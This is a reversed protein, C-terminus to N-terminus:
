FMGHLRLWQQFRGTALSQLDTWGVPWGMFWEVWEPNLSGIDFDEMQRLIAGPISDRDRQSPPLTSNKADQTAVAWGLKNPKRRGDGSCKLKTDNCAKSAGPTPMTISEAITPTRGKRFKESRVSLKTTPTGLSVSSGSEKVSTIWQRHAVWGSPTKRQYAVGAVTMGWKPWKGSFEVLGGALSRQLTKWSRSDPDYKALSAPWKRGCGAGSATLALGKELWPSIKVHSAGPLSISGDGGHGATSHECMMGSPSGPSCAIGSGSSSCEGAIHMWNLPAFLAIVACSEASSEEGQDLLFIYSM